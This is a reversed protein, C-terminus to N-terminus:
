YKTPGGDAAICAAVRDPMSDVLRRCTEPPIDCWAQKVLIKLDNLNSPKPKRCVSMKVEHWLNEIPNLDPSQAPWDLIRVKNDELFTTAIKSTHPRANDQQFLPRGRDISEPYKKLTPIAYKRLIEVHSAGTANNILPVLPGIGYWSFCGWFMCSPSRKVTCSLCEIDWEEYPEHWVRCFVQQFLQFSSEDSWLIRRFHRATWDKRALCWTLRKLANIPSVLPKPRAICSSLNEKKLTRRITKKSINLKTQTNFVTTIQAANLRRNGNIVLTKLASRDSVTLLSSRGPRKSQPEATGTERYKRIINGVVSKECGINAAITRYSDKRLFGYIIAGRQTATLDKKSGM